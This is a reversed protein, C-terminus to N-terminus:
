GWFWFLSAQNWHCHCTVWNRSCMPPTIELYNYTYIYIRIIIYVNSLKITKSPQKPNRKCVQSWTYNRSCRYVAKMEHWKMNLDVLVEGPLLDHSPWGLLRWLRCGSSEPWSSGEVFLLWVWHSPVWSAMWSGHGAEQYVLSGSILLLVTVCFALIQALHPNFNWSLGRHGTVWISWPMWLNPCLAEQLLHQYEITWMWVLEVYSM